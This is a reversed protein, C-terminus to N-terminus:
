SYEALSKLCLSLGLVSSWDLISSAICSTALFQLLLENFVLYLLVVLLSLVSLVLAKLAGPPPLGGQETLFREFVRWISEM